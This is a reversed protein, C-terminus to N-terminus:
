ERSVSASGGTQAKSPLTIETAMPWIEMELEVQLRFLNHYVSSTDGFRKLHTSENVISVRGPISADNVANTLNSLAHKIRDIAESSILCNQLM